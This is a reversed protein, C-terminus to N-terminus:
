RAVGEAVGPEEPRANEPPGPWLADSRSPAVDKRAGGSMSQVYAVLQWVQDNPIHGGFSPMGNPRGQVISAFISAPDGGYLWASDMLPPGMGGGGGAHCGNCNYWRFLRKGQAIAYANDIYPSSDAIAKAVGGQLGVAPQNPTARPEQENGTTNDVSTTFRRAERECSALVLVSAACVIVARLIM